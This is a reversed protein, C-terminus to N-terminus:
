RDDEDDPRTLLSQLRVQLREQASRPLRQLQKWAREEAREARSKLRPSRPARSPLRPRLKSLLFLFFGGAAILLGFRWPDM